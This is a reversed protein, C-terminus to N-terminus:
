PKNGRIRLLLDADIQEFLHKQSQKIREGERKLSLDRIYIYLGAALALIALSVFVPVIKWGVNSESVSSVPLYGFIRLTVLIVTFVSITWIVWHVSGFLNPRYVRENKEEKNAM